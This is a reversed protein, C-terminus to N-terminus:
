YSVISLDDPDKPNLLYPFFLLLLFFHFLSPSLFFFYDFFTALILISSLPSCSILFHRRGSMVLGFLHGSWVLHAWVSLHPPESHPPPHKRIDSVM